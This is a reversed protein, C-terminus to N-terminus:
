GLVDEKWIEEECFDDKIVAILKYEDNEQLRKIAEERDYTGDDWADSPDAQLAYWKAYRKDYRKGNWEIVYEDDIRPPEGKKFVRDIADSLIVKEEENLQEPKWIRNDNM